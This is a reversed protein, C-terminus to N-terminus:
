FRRNKDEFNNEDQSDVLKGKQRLLLNILIAKKDLAESKEDPSVKEKIIEADEVSDKLRKKDGAERTLKDFDYIMQSPYLKDIDEQQPRDEGYGTFKAYFSGMMKSLLAEAPIGLRASVRSLIVTKISISKMLQGYVHSEVQKDQHIRFDADISIRDGEVEKRVQELIARMERSDALQKDGKYIEKRTQYLYLYEELRGRKYGLRMDSFDRRFEEQRQKILDMNDNRFQTLQGVTVDTMGWRQVIVQHVESLTYYRGFFEVIEAQKSKIMRTSVKNPNIGGYAKKRHAYAQSRIRALKNHLKLIKNQEKEPLASINKIIFGKNAMLNLVLNPDSTEYKLFEDQYIHNVKEVFLKYQHEDVVEEPIAENIGPIITGSKTYRKKAESKNNDKKAM